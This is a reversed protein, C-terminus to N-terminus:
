SAPCASTQGAPSCRWPPPWALCRRALPMSFGPPTTRRGPRHAVMQRPPGAHVHGLLRRRPGRLQDELAPRVSGDRFVPPAAAPRSQLLGRMFRAQNVTSARAAGIDIGDSPWGIEGIVIRKGPFRDHVEALRHMADQVAIKEPVGEWYPLLHVTIFDVSKALEPHKLWVHWPEATSVPVHTQSKVLAIDAMLEPVTLDGRLITENGVMIQKVDPNANAVQVVKALEAANAQEHRDLWAGLTVNLNMGEALAPISGLDGEVTYTRINHTHQAVLELDSKIQAITPYDGTQPSEGAHFPSFAYGGIEGKYPPIDTVPRNTGAWLGFAIIGVGLAAAWSGPSAWGNRGKRTSIQAPQRRIQSQYTM